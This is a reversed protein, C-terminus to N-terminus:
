ESVALELFLYIIFLPLFMTTFSFLFWKVIQERKIRRNVEVQIENPGFDPYQHTVIAAIKNRKAVSKYAQETQLGYSPLLFDSLFAVVKVVLTFSISFMALYMSLILIPTNTIWSFFDGLTM